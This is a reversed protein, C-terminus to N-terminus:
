CGRRGGTCVPVLFRPAPVERLQLVLEGEGVLALVLAAAPSSSPTAATSMSVRVQGRAGRRGSHTWFLTAATSASGSRSRVGCATCTPTTARSTPQHPLLVCLVACVTCVARLASPDAAFLPALLAPRPPKEHLTPQHPWLRHLLATQESDVAVLSVLPVPCPADTPRNM